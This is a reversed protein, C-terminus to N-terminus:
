PSMENPRTNMPVEETPMNAAPGQKGDGSTAGAVAAAAKAKHRQIAYGGVAAWFVVFASITSGLIVPLSSKKKTRRSSAPVEFGGGNLDSGSGGGSNDNGPTSPSTDTSTSCVNTIPDHNGTLVLKLNKNCAISDPVAGVFFNYGLNLVQLDPFNGLFSPIYGYLYNQSFDIKQLADMISFDFNIEGYLSKLNLNLAIVRPSPDSNCEIWSWIPPVCPDDNYEVLSPIQGVILALGLVDSSNTTTSSATARSVSKVIKGEVDKQL